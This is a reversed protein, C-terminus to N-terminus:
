IQSFQIAQMWGCASIILNLRFQHSVIYSSNADTSNFDIIEGVKLELNHATINSVSVPQSDKGFSVRLIRPNSDSSSNDDVKVSTFQDGFGGGYIQSIEFDELGVNYIRIDDLFEAFAENNSSNGIYYVDSQERRDSAGVNMGDVFFRTQSSKGVVSYHHWGVMSLPDLSYGSSRYRNAANGEDGDFFCIMRDSGRVAFYRDYERNSQKDQGRYLTSRGSSNPPFLNKAWVTLTWVNGLNIGNNEVRIRADSQDKRFRVGQGFRGSSSVSADFLTAVQSGATKSIVSSSNLSDTDFPWWATLDEGRTVARYM